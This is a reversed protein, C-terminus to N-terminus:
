ILSALRTRREKPLSFRRTLKFGSYEGIFSRNVQMALTLYIVAPWVSLWVWFAHRFQGVAEPAWLSM